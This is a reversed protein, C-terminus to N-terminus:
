ASDACWIASPTSVVLRDLPSAWKQFFSGHRETRFCLSTERIESFASVRHNRGNALQDFDFRGTVIFDCDVPHGFGDCFFKRLQAAFDSKMPLFRKATMQLDVESSTGGLGHEQEAV